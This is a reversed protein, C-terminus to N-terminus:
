RAAHKELMGTFTRVLDPWARDGSFRLVEKRKESGFLGRGMTYAVTTPVSMVRASRALEHHRDIDVSAFVFSAEPFTRRMERELRQFKPSYAKCPGCWTAYFDIVVVRNGALLRAMDDATPQEM